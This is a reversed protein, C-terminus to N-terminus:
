YGSHCYISLSINSLILKFAALFWRCKDMSPVGMGVCLVRGEVRRRKSSPLVQPSTEATNEVPSLSHCYTTVPGWPRGPAQSVQQLCKELYSLRLFLHFWFASPAVPDEAPGERIWM